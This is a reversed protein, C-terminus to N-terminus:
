EVCLDLFINPCAYFRFWMLCVCSVTYFSKHSVKKLIEMLSWRTKRLIHTYAKYM